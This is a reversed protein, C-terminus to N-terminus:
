WLPKGNADRFIYIDNGRVIERALMTDRKETDKLKAGLISIQDGVKLDIGGYEKMFKVPATHVVMSGNPTKALVHHGLARSVPCDFEQVEEIVAAIRVEAGKEYKLGDYTAGPRQATAFIAIAVLSIIGILRKM